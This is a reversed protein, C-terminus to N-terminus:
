RVGRSVEASPALYLQQVTAGNYYHALIQRYGHGAEARGIAGIQCMGVGHGWGGGRFTALTIDGSAARELEVVFAGSNLNGFLQRIPLEHVISESSKSGVLQLSVVRGGPGREEVVLDRLHGLAAHDRELLTDLEAGRFSRTWRQRDARARSAKACYTEPKAMLWAGVNANSIGGAFPSLEPHTAVDFDPRARLAPNPVDGWVADNDETYGGCSSSYVSEVLVGSHFLVEGYTARVAETTRPDEYGLGGYVQCHQDACIHFPDDHHRRGLKALLHNRAAIAQAKLAESPSGAFMESPVVSELMAEVGLVNVAALAGSPDVVIYLEGKYRRDEFGHWSYGKAFEVHELAFPGAPARLRVYSTALGLPAGGAKIALEGWPRDRLRSKVTARTGFLEFLRSTLRAAQAASASALTVRYERNDLVRGYLGLVLGEEVAKVDAYGRARWGGLVRELAVSDGFRVGEIDVYYSRTAPTSRVLTIEISQGAQVSARKLTGHEYFDLQMASAASMRLRPEGSALGVAVIPEGNPAFAVQDGYLLDMGSPVPAPESPKDAAGALALLLGVLALQM